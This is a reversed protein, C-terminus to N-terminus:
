INMVTDDLGSLSFHSLFFPRCFIFLCELVRPIIIRKRLVLAYMQKKVQKRDFSQLFCQYTCFLNDPKLIVQDRHSDEYQQYEQAQM